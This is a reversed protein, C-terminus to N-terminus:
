LSPQSTIQYHGGSVAFMVNENFGNLNNRMQRHSNFRNCKAGFGVYICTFVVLVVFCYETALCDNMQRDM